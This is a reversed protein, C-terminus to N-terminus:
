SISTLVSVGQAASCTAADETDLRPPQLAKHNVNHVTFNLSGATHLKVTDHISPKTPAAQEPGCLMM